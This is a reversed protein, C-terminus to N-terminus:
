KEREAIMADAVDYAWRAEESHTLVAGKSIHPNAQLGQMVKAAFYDRLSMGDSSYSIIKGTECDFTPARPFVPGGDKENM